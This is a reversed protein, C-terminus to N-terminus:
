FSVPLLIVCLRQYHVRWSLSLRGVLSVPGKGIASTWKLRWFSSLREVSSLIDQGLTDKIRLMCVKQLYDKAAEVSQLQCNFNSKDLRLILTQLKSQLKGRDVEGNHNSLKGM